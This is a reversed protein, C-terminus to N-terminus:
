DLIATPQTVSVGTEPVVVPPFKDSTPVTQKIQRCKEFEEEFKRIDLGSKEAFKDAAVRLVNPPRKKASEQLIEELAESVDQSLPPWDM